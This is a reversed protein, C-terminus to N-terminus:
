DHPTVCVVYDPLFKLFKLHARAYHPTGFFVTGKANRKQWEEAPDGMKEAANTFGEEDVKKSKQVVLAAFVKGKAGEKDRQLKSNKSQITTRYSLTRKSRRM